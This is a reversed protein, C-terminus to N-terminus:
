NQRRRQVKKVIFRIIFFLILLITLAIAYIALTIKNPQKFIDIINKSDHVVKRDHTQEYYTPIEPLGDVKEFSSLYNALAYWEKLEQDGDYIIHEEFDEIIKGDKDKPEIKLLGYSLDTVLPLMQASYLGVAIRYLKDDDIETRNGDMDQLQVNTVKNFIIRNPNFTYTLGSMYLQVDNFLPTVSADVEAVTKLEKGTLYASVLPYGSSGDKGVGLALVNFADSVTIDGKPFSSRINGVPVVAAAIDDYDAGEIEQITHRYSDGILNGITSEDHKKSLTAFNSLDFPARAIIQHFDWDYTDLYTDQVIDKFHEIEKAVDEVDKVDETVPITEYRDLTWQNSDQILEMVGVYQGYSGSSGIVTDGHIIPEEHLTHSHGSIIADIDPVEKALEEDESKSPNEDTGSHSIALIFDVDEEEKMRDITAQAADVIYDFEVGSMPADGAAEEGLLGIVGIRIGSKEIVTYDQVDYADMADHLHQLSEIINGNDDTPYIINSAVIPPIDEGSELAAFLSDALGDARFDFEHNGFTVVDYDMKGFLRLTPAETAFITQFLTGMAYDGADVVLADPNKAKEDEIIRAIKAFGGVQELKGKREATFPYYNDHLDHTFIITLKDKNENALATKNVPSIYTFSLLIITLIIFFKRM